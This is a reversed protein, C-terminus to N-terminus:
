ATTPGADYIHVTQPATQIVGLIAKVDFKSVDGVASLRLFHRRPGREDL